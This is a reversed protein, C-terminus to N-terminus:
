RDTETGGAASGPVIRTYYRDHDLNRWVGQEARDALRDSDYALTREVKDDERRVIEVLYASV